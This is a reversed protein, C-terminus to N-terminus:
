LETVTDSLSSAENTGLAKKYELGSGSYIFELTDIKVISYTTGSYAISAGIVDDLMPIFNDIVTQGSGTKDKFTYPQSRKSYILLFAVNNRKIEHRYLKTGGSIKYKTDGVQLSTLSDESGALVPNARVKPVVLSSEGDYMGSISYEGGDVMIYYGSIIDSSNNFEEFRIFIVIDDTYRVPIYQLYEGDFPCSLTYKGSLVKETIGLEDFTLNGENSDIEIVGLCNAIAAQLEAETVGGESDIYDELNKGKIKIGNLFNVVAQEVKDGFKPAVVTQVPTGRGLDKTETVLPNETGGGVKGEGPSPELDKINAGLRADNNEYNAM